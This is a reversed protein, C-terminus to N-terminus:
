FFFLNMRQYVLFRKTVLNMVYDFPHSPKLYWKTIGVQICNLILWEPFLRLYNSLDLLTERFIASKWHQTAFVWVAGNLARGLYNSYRVYTGYKQFRVQDGFLKLFEVKSQPSKQFETENKTYRKANQRRKDKNRLTSWLIVQRYLQVMWLM